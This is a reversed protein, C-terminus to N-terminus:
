KKIRLEKEKKGLRLAKRRSDRQTDFVIEM